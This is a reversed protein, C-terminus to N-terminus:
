PGGGRVEVQQLIVRDDVPSLDADLVPLRQNTAADYWGVELLYQGPTLDAPLNLRCTEVVVEGPLWATTPFDGGGPIRDQQARVVNSGDLLHVFYTYSTPIESLAKWYLNVTLMGGPQGVEPELDYGLLAIQQGFDAPLRHQMEAPPQMLRPRGEVVITGAALSGAPKGAGGLWQITVQYTGPPLDPPLRLPYPVRFFEGQRWLHTPYTGPVPNGQYLTIQGDTGLLAIRVTYDTAPAELAHWAITLPLPAGPRLPGPPLPLVWAELGDGSARRETVAPAVESADPPSLPPDLSVPGLDLREGQPAGREDLLPLPSGTSEDYVLIQLRYDGPPTGAPPHLLYVNTTQEGVKWHGTHLHQDNLLPRDDQAVKQGLADLLVVSAKLRTETPALHKWRAAVWVPRDAPGHPTGGPDERGWSVGYSFAALGVSGGFRGNADQWGDALRFVADPPLRYRDLHYGRFNEEGEFTGHKELLYRVAGRPDTDSKYWTIYFVRECDQCLETLRSDITNIDVFLYHAPASGQYYYQFPYPVDILVVDQPSAQQEVYRAVGPVDERHFAPNWYDSYLGIGAPVLWLTLAAIGLLIHEQWLRALAAGLLVYLAPTVFMIYRPHFAGRDQLVLFYILWPVLFTSWMLGAMRPQFGRDGGDGKRPARRFLSLATGALLILAAAAMGWVVAGREVNVGFNFAQWCHGFYEQWTPVQLTPNRYPNIQALARPLQPLFILAALAQSGWWQGVRKLGFRDQWWARRLLWDLAVFLNEALIVFLASYHTLLAAASTVGWLIWWKTQGEEGPDLARSLSYLGLCLALLTLTYMRTEQCESVWMPAVAALLMAIGGARPGALREGLKGVLPLLLLGFGVSLFRLAFESRGALGMWVHLVYFYLPPHIDLERAGAIQALHRSAVDINRGEDWWIAQADLRYLRLGFALLLIFLLVLTGM